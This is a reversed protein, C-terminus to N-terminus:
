VNNKNFKKDTAKSYANMLLATQTITASEKGCCGHIGSYGDRSKEPFHIGLSDLSIKYCRRCQVFILEEDDIYNNSINEKTIDIYKDDNDNLFHRGVQPLLNLYCYEPGIQDLWPRGYLIAVNAESGSKVSALLLLAAKEWEEKTPAQPKIEIWTNRKPLFFDPLYWVSGLDFVM